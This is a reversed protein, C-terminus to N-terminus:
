YNIRSKYYCLYLFGPYNNFILEFHYFKVEPIHM